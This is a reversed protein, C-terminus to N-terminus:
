LNTTKWNLTCGFVHFSTFSLITYVLRYGNNQVIITTHYYQEM